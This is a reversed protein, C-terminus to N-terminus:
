IRDWDILRSEFVPGDSCVMIYNRNEKENHTSAKVACGLCVGIGCAMARELSVYCRAGEKASIDAAKKLMPAPGCAYVTTAPTIVGRLLDTVYGKHGLSGDETAFKVKLGLAKFDKAVLTEAKGRAGFLLAGRKITSAFLYLPVIGMGGAIMVIDQSPHPAPFGNGLPGLVSLKEGPTKGSLIGTGKGVVQYILEICDGRLRDKGKANLVKYVGFPRRLLPDLGDSVRLMVFHGPAIAPTKWKLGLRFYRSSVRENYLIEVTQEQM